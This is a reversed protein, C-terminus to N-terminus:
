EEQQGSGTFLTPDTPAAPASPVYPAPQVPAAQPNAGGYELAEYLAACSSHYYPSVYFINLLGFTFASLIWWGIFSLDMVFARWKNGNMLMRSHAFAEKSTVEPHDALIYPVMRYSYSKVIGPVILLLSWLFVYLDRLFLTKVNNLYNHDYGFMAEKAEANGHLNKTFFRRCGVELPSYLFVSILIAIIVIVTVIALVILAIGALVAPDVSQFYETIAEAPDDATDAQPNETGPIYLEPIGNEEDPPLYFGGDDTMNQDPQVTQETKPAFLNGTVAGSGAAAGAGAGGVVSAVILAIFVSKWYNARFAAKGQRKVEARNWMIKGGYHVGIM